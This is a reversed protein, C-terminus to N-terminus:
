ITGTAKVESCQTPETPAKVESCRVMYKGTVFRGYLAFGIAGLGALLFLNVACVDMEPFVYIGLIICLIGLLFIMGVTTPVM